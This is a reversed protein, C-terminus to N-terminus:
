VINGKAMAHIRLYRLERADLARVTRLWRDAEIVMTDVFSRTLQSRTLDSVLQAWGKLVLPKIQDSDDQFVRVDLDLNELHRRYIKPTWLPEPILHQAQWSALANGGAKSAAAYDTIIVQGYPKLAGSIKALIEKRQPLFCLQERMYICDFKAAPLTLNKPDYHSVSTKRTSFKSAANVLDPDVEMGQIWADFEDSTAKMEGALGASLDLVTMEPQINLPKLLSITYDAGGPRTAGKGWLQQVLAIREHSWLSHSTDSNPENIVIDSASVPETGAVKIQTTSSGDWWAKLREIM